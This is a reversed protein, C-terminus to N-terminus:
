IEEGIVVNVEGRSVLLQITTYFVAIIAFVICVITVNASGMFMMIGTVCYSTAFNGLSYAATVIGIADDVRQQPVMLPLHAYSFSIALGYTAGLILCAAIVGVTSPFFYLILMSIISFAYSPLIAWKTMKKYIVGFTACLFFSGLTTLASLVGVFAANGLNNEISYSSIFYLVFGYVINYLIFNGIMIWFKSGMPDLKKEQDCRVEPELTKTNPLFLVFMIVVPIASWYTFYANKWFGVALSGSVITIIIGAVSIFAYYFGMITARKKEDTYVEAILAVAAVNVFAIGVGYPIRLLLMYWVNDVAAGFMSCLAFISGGVILLRKKSMKRLLVSAFLSAFIMAMMPISILTNVAGINEPFSDYLNFIIPVVVLEGMIIVSSLMITILFLIKKIKSMEISM